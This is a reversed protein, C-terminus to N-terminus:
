FMIRSRLEIKHHAQKMGYESLNKGAFGIYRGTFSVHKFRAYNLEVGGMLSGDLINVITYGAPTFYVFNFPDPHTAKVYFYDTMTFQSGFYKANNQMVMQGMARNGSASANAMAEYYENMDTKTHGAGIHLYELIFTTNFPALYRTGLVLNVAKRNESALTTGKNFFTTRSDPEFSLEGHVEWDPFINRSFDCGGKIEKKGHVFLYFDIDTNLLLFYTQILGAVSTDSLYDKNVIGFVPLMVGTLAITSLAGNLSQLYEGSVNWYGELAADIDNLDKQRGAFAVPNYAYGKGWRFTQKGALFSYSTNPSYKLYGEHLKWGFAITDDIRPYSAVLSGSADAVLKKKQYRVSGEAKVNYIDAYKPKDTPYKLTYFPSKKNFLALVPWLEMDAAVELPKKALTTTDFSYDQTSAVDIAFANNSFLRCFAMIFVTIRVGKPVQPVTM